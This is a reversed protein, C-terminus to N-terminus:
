WDTDIVIEPAPERLDLDFRVSEGLVDVRAAYVAPTVDVQVSGDDQIVLGKPFPDDFDASASTGVELRGPPLRQGGQDVIRTTWLTAPELELVIESPLDDQAIRVATLPSALGDTSFRGRAMFVHGGERLVCDVGAADYVTFLHSGMGGAPPWCIVSPVSPPIFSKLGAVRLRVRAHFPLQIEHSQSGLVLREVGFATRAPEPIDAAHYLRAAPEPGAEVILSAAILEPVWGLDFSGDSRPVALLEVSESDPDQGQYRISYVFRSPEFHGTLRGTLHFGEGPPNSMHISHWGVDLPGLNSVLKRGVRLGAPMEGAAIELVTRTVDAPLDHGPLAEIAVLLHTGTHLVPLRYGGSWESTTIWVRQSDLPNGDVDCLHVVAVQCGRVPDGEADLVRGDSRESCALVALAIVWLGALAIAVRRPRANRPRAHVTM